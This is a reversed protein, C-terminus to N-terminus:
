GRWICESFCVDCCFSSWKFIYTWWFHISNKALWVNLKGNKKQWVMYDLCMDKFRRFFNWSRIQILPLEELPKLWWTEIWSRSKRKLGWPKSRGVKLPTGKLDTPPNKSKIAGIEKTAWFGYPVQPQKVRYYTSHFIVGSFLSRCCPGVITEDDTKKKTKKRCWKHIYEHFNMYMVIVTTPHFHWSCYSISSTQFLFGLNSVQIGGWFFVKDLAPNPNTGICRLCMFYEGSFFHSRLIVKDLLFFIRLGAALVINTGHENELVTYYYLTAENGGRWTRTPYGVIGFFGPSPQFVRKLMCLFEKTEVVSPLFPIGM